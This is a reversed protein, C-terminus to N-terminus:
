HGSQSAAVHFAALFAAVVVAAITTVVIAGVMPTTSTTETIPRTFWILGALVAAVSAVVFVQGSGSTQFLFQSLPLRIELGNFNDDADLDADLGAGGVQGDRGLSALEFDYGTRRYRFPHDWLELPEGSPGLPTARPQM